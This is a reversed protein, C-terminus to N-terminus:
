LGRLAGGIDEVLVWIVYLTAIGLALQAITTAASETHRM